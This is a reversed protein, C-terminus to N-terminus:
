SATTLDFGNYTLEGSDPRLLTSLVSLFTSKGSGSRGVISVFEGPLVSLSVGKLAQTPTGDQTFSKTVNVADLLPTALANGASVETTATNM